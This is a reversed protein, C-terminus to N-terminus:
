APERINEETRESELEPLPPFRKLRRLAVAAEGGEAMLARGNWKQQVRFGCWHCKVNVIGVANVRPQRINTVQFVHGVGGHCGHPTPRVVVVLDGVSIPKDSM